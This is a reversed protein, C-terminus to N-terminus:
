AVQGSYKDIMLNYVTGLREGQRNYVATGEVKDSAILRDTEETAVVGGTGASETRMKIEMGLLYCLFPPAFSVNGVAYM